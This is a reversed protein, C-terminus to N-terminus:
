LNSGAHVEVNPCGLLEYFKLCKFPTVEGMPPHIVPLIKRPYKRSAEFM